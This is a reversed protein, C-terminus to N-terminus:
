TTSDGNVPPLTPLGREAREILYLDRYELPHRDRLQRLAALEARKRIQRNSKAGKSGRATAKRGRATQIKTTRSRHSIEVERPYRPLDAKFCALCRGQTQDWVQELVFDGCACWRYGVIEVTLAYTARSLGM